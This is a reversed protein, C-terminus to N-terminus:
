NSAGVTFIQGSGIPGSYYTSGSVAIKAVRTPATGVVPTVLATSGNSNNLGTQNTELSVVNNEITFPIAMQANPLMLYGRNASLLVALPYDGNKTQSTQSITGNVFTTGNLTGVMIMNRWNGSSAYWGAVVFTTSNIATIPTYYSSQAYNSQPDTATIVTSSITLVQTGGSHTVIASTASLGTICVSNVGSNYITYKTGVSITTGSVTLINACTAGGDQVYAAVLTTSTIPSVATYFAGTTSNIVAQTGVSLSTGSMTIVNAAIPSADTTYTVVATTSNLTTICISGTPSNAITVKSLYTPTTTSYDFLYATLAYYGNNVNEIALYIARTSSLATLFYPGNGATFAQVILQVPYASYSTTLTTGSVGVPQEYGGNGNDGFVNIFTATSPTVSPAQFPLLNWGFGTYGTVGAALNAVTGFSMTTGSASFGIVRVVNVPSGLTYSSYAFVGNGSGTACVSYSNWTTVSNPRYLTGVSTTTGSINITRIAISTTTDICVGIALTSTLTTLRANMNYDGGSLNGGVANVTITTGSVSCTRTVMGNSDSYYCVLFLSSSLGTLGIQKGSSTSGSILVGTGVTITTGSISLVNARTSDSQGAYGIAITTASLLGMFQTGVIHNANTVITTVANATFTTGSITVTFAKLSGSVDNYSVVALTSSLVMCGVNSVGTGAASSTLLLQPSGYSIVGSTNTAVIGYIDGSLIYVTMMQTSSLSSTSQSFSMSSPIVSGPIATVPSVYSPPIDNITWTGATTTAVSAWCTVGQEPVLPFLYNGDYDYVLMSFQGINKIDITRNSLANAAPLNIKVNATSTVTLYSGGDSSTLTIDTTTTTINRYSASGVTGWTGNGLLATTGSPTGTANIGTVNLTGTSTVNDAFAGLNRPISM